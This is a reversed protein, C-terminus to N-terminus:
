PEAGEPISLEGTEIPGFRVAGDSLAAYTDEPIIQAITGLIVGLDGITTTSTVTVHVYIASM